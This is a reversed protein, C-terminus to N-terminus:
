AFRRVGRPAEPMSCAVGAQDTLVRWAEGRCQLTVGSWTTKLVVAVCSVPIAGAGPYMIPLGVM